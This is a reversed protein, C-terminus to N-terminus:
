DTAADPAAYALVLDMVNTRTPGTRLVGGEAAFFGYADNDDLAARADLGLAAGRAVTGGDAFAGAADTPGDRGDTGAALLGVSPRGAMALAAALALEQNRGGRGRGRVHVVTEGGAVLCVPGRTRVASCLAGLRRGALRAEGALTGSVRIAQLGREGAARLASELATANSAIVTHRIRRLRRDDPRPTEAHEGRAGAELYARARAPLQERVDCADVVDLADRYSSLDGAFPGSGIVDIRDGPVDSIALVEVRVGDARTALRGGAVDSLHKRVANLADIAAGGELLARTTEALDELRLGSAPCALLSSAGGSLLVVLVDSPEVADVLAQARRAARECRADPVPHASECCEIRSLPLAYGEPVVALGGALQEGLQIEVAQAMPAAAKGMALVWVRSRPDVREGAITLGGDAAHSVQRAVAQAPDVSALAVRLVSELSERIAPPPTV